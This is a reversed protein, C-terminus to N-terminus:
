SIFLKIITNWRADMMTIDARLKQYVPFFRRKTISQPRYLGFNGDEGVAEPPAGKTGGFGRSDGPSLATKRVENVAEGQGPVKRYRGRRAHSNRTEEM